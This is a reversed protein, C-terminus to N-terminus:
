QDHSTIVYEEPSIIVVSLVDLEHAEYKESEENITM